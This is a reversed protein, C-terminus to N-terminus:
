VRGRPLSAAGAVPLPCLAEKMNWLPRERFGWNLLILSKLMSKNKYCTMPNKEGLSHRRHKILGGGEKKGSLSPLKFIDGVSWYIKVGGKHIFNLIYAFYAERGRSDASPQSLSRGWANVRM